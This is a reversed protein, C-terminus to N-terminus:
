ALSWYFARGGPHDKTIADDVDRYDSDTTHGAFGIRTRGGETTIRTVVGTHDRDGTGDWDFQVVDGLKVEAREDDTLATGLEPHAHMFDRFMTSSIWAGGSQAVSDAHTWLGQQEWGRELLSQSTFDVCDTSGLPQYDPNYDKWYRLLYQLQRDTGDVAGFRLTATGVATAGARLSAAVSRDVFDPSGPATFVVRDASASSVPVDVDDIRVATVEALGSGRVEVQTGGRVSVTAPSATRVAPGESAAAVPASGGARAGSPASCGALGGGVVLAGFALLVQRRTGGM